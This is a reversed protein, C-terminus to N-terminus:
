AALPVARARGLALSLRALMTLDAHLQVAGFGAYRGATLRHRESYPTPTVGLVFTLPIGGIWWGVDVYRTAGPPITMRPFPDLSNPWGLAPNVLWRIVAGSNPKENVELVLVEVDTAAEKGKANTVALRLFPIDDGTKNAEHTFAHRDFELTLSPRRHWARWWIVLQVGVAAAVALLTGVATLWDAASAFVIAHEVSVLSCDRECCPRDLRAVQTQARLLCQELAVQSHPHSSKFRWPTAGV